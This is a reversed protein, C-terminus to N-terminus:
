VIHLRKSQNGLKRLDIIQLAAPQLIDLYGVSLARVMFTKVMLMKINFDGKCLKEIFKQREDLLDPFTNPGDQHHFDMKM